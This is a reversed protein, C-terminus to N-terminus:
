DDGGGGGVVLRESGAGARLTRIDAVIRDVVADMSGRGVVDGDM